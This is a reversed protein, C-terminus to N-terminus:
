RNKLMVLSVNDQRETFAPFAVLKVSADPRLIPTKPPANSREAKVLVEGMEGDSGVKEEAEKCVKREEGEDLLRSM